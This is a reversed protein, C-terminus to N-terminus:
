TILPPLAILTPSQRGRGFLRKWTKLQTTFHGHIGLRLSSVGSIMRKRLRMLRRGIKVKLKSIRLRLCSPKRRSDAKDLVKHILFQARRRIIDEPDEKDVKSYGYSRRSLDMNRCFSHSLSLSLPTVLM